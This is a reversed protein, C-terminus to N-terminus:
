ERIIGFEAFKRNDKVDALKMFASRVSGQVQNRANALLQEREKNYNLATPAKITKTIQIVYVGQEGALPNTRKGDKMNTFLSGVVEPEIGMGPIQPNAFTVEGKMVTVNLKKNQELAMLSQNLMMKTLRKAKIEKMLEYKMQREADEFNPVGKERISSIMAIVYKDQDKIPSSCLDGVQADAGYAFKLIKEAALASTFGQVKPREDLIKVPRAYYNNLKAISDFMTIKDKVTKQKSVKADLSYLLDHVKDNIEMEADESPILTQDIVSLVPIKADKKGLVEIIHYGFQTEVVGIQGIKGTSVFKSFEPVFEDYSFNEYKGGTQVSGQDQSFKTVFEEFNDKNVLAALSDAMRKIKKSGLTDAKNAQLLIHRATLEQTNFSRVKALYVKGQFNYPGVVQGVSATKFITDMYQPYTQEPKANKDTESRYPIFAKMMKKNVNESHKIAYLSDNKATIFGNKIGNIKVNFASSDNKNAQILVDFFMVDRGATAEYKKETKHEEYYKQLMADTIKVKADPIDSYRKMVFSINKKENQALYENKAELKTVYVGQALLQYYKENIRQERLQKKNKEWNQSVEPNPNKEMEEIRKELLRRNFQGTLSDTFSKALDPMVTFGNDGYLYADLEKDSCDIGLADFEKQMITQDVLMSWARDESAEKDQETYEKQAQQAQLADQNIMENTLEEYKKPDIVEGYISGLGLNNQNGGFMSDWGSLIFSLMAVGIVILLLGSKDRIKGIIAM